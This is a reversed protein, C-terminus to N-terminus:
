SLIKLMQILYKGELKDTEDHDLERKGFIFFGNEEYFKILKPKDECELYVVKGGIQQQIALVKDCAIKLLEDGTILKDYQNSYNKGLQGILPASIIYRETDPDYQGFKIIKKRMSKSLADKSIIFFKAALTFYGVLVPKENHPAFILYTRAIGQKAFEIAKIKLFNEIDLNMPCSFTSLIDRVRDEGLEDLMNNLNIQIYDKM